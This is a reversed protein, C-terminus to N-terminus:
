NNSNKSVRYNDLISLKTNWGDKEILHLLHQKDKTKNVPWKGIQSTRGCTKNKILEWNNYFLSQIEVQLKAYSSALTESELNEFQIQKQAIIDGSDIGEDIYHISVGSPTGKIFSWFNPDAGRNYPLYSIHLNIAKDPLLDLIEKKLIYRYGYSIIFEIHNELIFQVSIEDITSIVNESKKKLWTIVPSDSPGLFLIKKNM